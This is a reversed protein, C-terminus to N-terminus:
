WSFIQDIQIHTHGVMMFCLTVSRMVGRAIMAALFGMIYNNKNESVTNDMQIVVDGMRNNQFKHWLETFQIFLATCM